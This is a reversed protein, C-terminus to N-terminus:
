AALELEWGDYGVEWGAARVELHQPSNENLIPNTNNIHTLVKRPHRLSRLTVLTGDTGSLPLHGIDRARPAHSAATQQLEDDSWFTGDIFVVDCTELTQILNTNIEPLSPIYAVRKGGSEILLGVVADRSSVSRDDMYAPFQGPLEIARFLVGGPSSAPTFSHGAVFEIWRTQDPVRDLMHFFPNRKLTNAVAPTAYIRLPQLERMSLLGLVHDLEASTLVVAEIPTNRLKGNARAILERHSEIQSRIDPSANLLLWHSDDFSVAAQAQTRPLAPM